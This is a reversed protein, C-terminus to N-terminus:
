ESDTHTTERTQNM